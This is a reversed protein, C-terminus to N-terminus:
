GQLFASLEETKLRHCFADGISRLLVLDLEDGQCKKDSKAGDLYESLAVPGVTPLRFKQLLACLRAATGPATIGRRESAATVAAMGVAVAAGHSLGEYNQYKELAHGVTHGFNLLKREGSEREDRSVVGSKVLMCRRVTELLLDPSFPQDKELLEFLGADGICATKVVEGMGDTVYAPPLTSLTDIDAIVLRPQWFAGVLNKGEPIDVGTKGGISADVQALLSTPIQVFAMGRMWTAAAYGSLDGSVGGGLSVIIDSRDFHNSALAKYIHLVTEIRKHKEGAPFTLVSVTRYGAKLLSESVTKAYLKSVNSDSVILARAGQHVQRILRGAQSLLDRGLLIDYPRDVAVPISIAQM